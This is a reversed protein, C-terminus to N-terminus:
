FMGGWEDYKEETKGVCKKKDCYFIKELRIYLWDDKKVGAGCLWCVFSGLM